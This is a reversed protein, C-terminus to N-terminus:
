PTLNTSLDAYFRSDREVTEGLTIPLPDPFIPGAYVFSHYEGNEGCPDVGDPFRDVLDATLDAGAFSEGLCPEVCTLKAKFGLSVFERILQDTPELWIPYVGDMGVSNLRLQRHRRLPELNIDGHAILFVGDARYGALVDGMKADFQEMTGKTPFYVKQLPLGLAEAQLDLLEERVGHHSVRSFQESVTTLLGVVEYRDDKLLRNLAMASDKGSSWSMVVKGTSPPLPPLPGEPKVFSDHCSM